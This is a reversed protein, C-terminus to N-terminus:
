NTRDFPKDVQLFMSCEAITRNSLNVVWYTLICKYNDKPWTSNRNMVKARLDFPNSNMELAEHDHKSSSCSFRHRIDVNKMGTLCVILM